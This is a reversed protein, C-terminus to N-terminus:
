TQAPFPRAPPSHSGPSSGQHCSASGVEPCCAEQTVGYCSQLVFGMGALIQLGFGLSPFTHLIFGGLLLSQSGTGESPPCPVQLFRVTVRPPPSLLGWTQAEPCSPKEPDRSRLSSTPHCFCPSVLSESRVPYVPTRRGGSCRGSPFWLGWKGCTKGCPCSLLDLQNAASGSSPSGKPPTGRNGQLSLSWTPLPLNM